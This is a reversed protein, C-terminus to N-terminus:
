GVNYTIYINQNESLSYDNLTSSYNEIPHKAKFNSEENTYYHLQFHLISLNNLVTKSIFGMFSLISTSRLFRQTQFQSLSNETQLRLKIWPRFNVINKEDDDDDDDGEGGGGKEQEGYKELLQNWRPENEFIIDGSQVKSIFYLEANEIEEKTLKSGNLECLKDTGCQFRAILQMTMEDISIDDVIPNHNIRLKQLNPLALSLSDIQEWQSIRNYRLDLSTISTWKEINTPVTEIKNYSLNLSGANNLRPITCLTNYSMDLNELPKKTLLLDSKILDEDRYYNGSLILEKLHPLLQLIGDITEMSILTSALKLSTLSFSNSNSNSNSNSFQLNKPVGFSSFRNGNLNLEKLKPLKSIILYVESLDNFLNCSIDLKELNRLGEFISDREREGKEEGGEKTKKTEWARYILQHDLTLSKLNSLNSYYRNLEDWGLEEVLKNGIQIERNKYDVDLYQEKIVQVFSKRVWNFKKNTSKIFSASQPIRPSFYTISNLEGNNKGRTPDDWELGYALTKEGWEPIYGIYRITAIHNDKTSIRDNIAYELMSVGFFFHHLGTFLDQYGIKELVRIKSVLDFSRTTFKKSTAFPECVSANGDADNENISNRSEIYQQIQNLLKTNQKVVQWDCVLGPIHLYNYDSYLCFLNRVQYFFALDKMNLGNRTEDEDILFNLINDYYEGILLDDDEALTAASLYCKLAMDRYSPGSNKLISKRYKFRELDHLRHYVKALVHYKLSSKIPNKTIKSTLFELDRKSQNTENAQCYTRLFVVNTKYEVNNDDIDAAEAFLDAAEKYEHRLMAIFGKITKIQQAYTISVTSVSGTFFSSVIRGKPRPILAQNVLFEFYQNMIPEMKLMHYYAINPGFVFIAEVLIKLPNNKLPKREKNWRELMSDAHYIKNIIIQCKGTFSDKPFVKDVTQLDLIQDDFSKFKNLKNNVSAQELRQLLEKELKCIETKMNDFDITTVLNNRSIDLIEGLCGMVHEKKNLDAYTYALVKIFEKKKNETPAMCIAFGIERFASSIRGFHILSCGIILNFIPPFMNFKTLQPLLFMIEMYNAEVYHKRLQDYMAVIEAKHKSSSTSSVATSHPDNDIEGTEAGGGGGGGGGVVDGSLQQLIDTDEFDIHIAPHEM